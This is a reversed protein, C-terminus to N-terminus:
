GVVIQPPSTPTIKNTKTCTEQLRNSGPFDLNLCKGDKTQRKLNLEPLFYIECIRM